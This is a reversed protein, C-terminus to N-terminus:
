FAYVFKTLIISYENEKERQLDDGVSRLVFSLLSSILQSAFAHASFAFETHRFVDKMNAWTVLAELTMGLFSHVIAM